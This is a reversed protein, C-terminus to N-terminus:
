ASKILNLATSNLFIYFNLVYKRVKKIIIADNTKRRKQM